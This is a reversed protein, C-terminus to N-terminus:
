RWTSGASLCFYEAGTLEALKKFEAGISYDFEKIKSPFAAPSSPFGHAMASMSVANFLARNENWLKRDQSKIFEKTLFKLEVPHARASLKKKLEAELLRQCGRGM